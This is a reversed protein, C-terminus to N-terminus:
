VAEFQDKGVGCDPCVWDDPLDEFATGASVDNDPDGKAPDYVYGCVTCEYKQMNGADKREETQNKKHFTAAREPTKGHRVQRYYTYTMPEAEDDIIDSRLIRGIFLTHTEVQVKQVVEAEIVAVTNDLVVPLGSTGTQYNIGGFKDIDRGSRFGFPGMFKMSADTSLVSVSFFGSQSIIENTLNERHISVAVTAPDPSLQVVTNVICGNKKGDSVASAICMGYTLKYLADYDLM